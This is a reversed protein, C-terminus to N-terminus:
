KKLDKKVKAKEAKKRKAEIQDAREKSYSVGKIIVNEM